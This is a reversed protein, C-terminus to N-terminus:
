KRSRIRARVRTQKIGPHQYIHTPQLPRIHRAHPSQRLTLTRSRLTQLILMQLLTRGPPLSKLPLQCSKTPDLHHFSYSAFPRTEPTLHRLACEELDSSSSDRKTNANELVRNRDMKQRSITPVKPIDVCDLVANRLNVVMMFKM